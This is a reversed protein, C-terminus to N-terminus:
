KASRQDNAGQSPNTLKLLCHPVGRRPEVKETALWDSDTVM